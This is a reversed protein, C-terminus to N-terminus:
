SCAPTRPSSSRRSSASTRAPTSALMAEKGQEVASSQHLVMGFGASCDSFAPCFIPVRKPLLDARAVREEAHNKLWTRAWRRSSSAALLVCGPADRSSRTTADDCARLEDEDIYTDYIRDIMLNRLTLDDVPPAEPSGPAIYHKFGLGEFFDQDVINAGTSVIADGHQERGAHHHAKKLGASILSGALTLIVACGKDALMM